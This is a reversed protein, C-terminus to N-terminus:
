TECGSSDAHRAVDDYSAVICREASKVDPATGSVVTSVFYCRWVVAEAVTGCRAISGVSFHPEDEDFFNLIGTHPCKRTLLM